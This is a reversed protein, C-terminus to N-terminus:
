DQQGAGQSRAVTLSGVDSANTDTAFPYKQIMGMQNPASYGGTVYGHERSNQGSSNNLTDVLNGM